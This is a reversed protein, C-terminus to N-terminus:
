ITIEILDQIQTIFKVIKSVNEKTLTQWDLVVTLPYHYLDYEGDHETPIRVGHPYIDFGFKKGMSVIQAKLASSHSSQTFKVQKKTGAPVISFVYNHDFESWAVKCDLKKGDHTVIKWSATARETSFPNHSNRGGWTSYQHGPFHTGIMKVVELNAKARQDASMRAEAERDIAGPEHDPDAFSIHREGFNEALKRIAKSM